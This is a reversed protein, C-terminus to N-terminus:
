YVKAELTTNKYKALDPLKNKVSEHELNIGAEADLKVVEKDDRYCDGSFGTFGFPWAVNYSSAHDAFYDATLTGKFSARLKVVKVVKFQFKVDASIVAHGYNEVSDIIKIQQYIGTEEDYVVEYHYNEERLDFSYDWKGVITMVNNDSYYKLSLGYQSLQKTIAAEDIGETLNLQSLYKMAKTMGFSLENGLDFGDAVPYNRYTENKTDALAYISRGYVDKGNPMFIANMDTSYKTSGEGLVANKESVSYSGEISGKISDNDRDYAGDATLNLKASAENRTKNKFNPNTLKQSATAKIGAILKSDPMKYGDKVYETDKISNQAKEIFEKLSVEHRHSAFKTIDGKGGIGLDSLLTCATLSVGMMLVPIVKLLKNKM